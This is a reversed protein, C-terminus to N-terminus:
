LIFFPSCYFIGAELQAYVLESVHVYLGTCISWMGRHREWVSTCCVVCVRLKLFYISNLSIRSMEPLHLIYKIHWKKICLIRSSLPLKTYSYCLLPHQHFNCHYLAFFHQRFSRHSFFSSGSWGLRPGARTHGKASDLNNRHLNYGVKSGESSCQFFILSSEQNTLAIM